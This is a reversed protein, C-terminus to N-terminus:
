WDVYTSNHHKAMAASEKRKCKYFRREEMLSRTSNSIWKSRREKTQYGLVKESTKRIIDSVRSWEEEITKVPLTMHEKWLREVEERYNQNTDEDRLRGVNFKRIRKPPRKKKLKLKMGAMILQHDSGCDASPFARSFQVSGLWRKNVLIYDIQNHTIGGPSEWTWIRNEKSQKFRTNTVFLNNLM